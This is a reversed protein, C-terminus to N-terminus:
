SLDIAFGDVADAFRQSALMTVLYALALRAGKGRVVVAVTRDDGRSFAYQVGQARRAAHSLVLPRKSVIGWPNGAKEVAYDRIAGLLDAPTADERLSVSGKIREVAM